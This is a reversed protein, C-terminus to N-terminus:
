VRLVCGLDALWRVRLLVADGGVQRVLMTKAPVNQSTHPGNSCSETLEEVVRAGSESGSLVHRWAPATTVAARHRWTRLTGPRIQGAVNFM